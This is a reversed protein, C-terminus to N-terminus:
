GFYLLTMKNNNKNPNLRFLFKNQQTIIVLSIFSPLFEMNCMTMSLNNCVHRGTDADRKNRIERIVFLGPAQRCFKLSQIKVPGKIM